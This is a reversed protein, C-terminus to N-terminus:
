TVNSYIEIINSAQLNTVQMFVELKAVLVVGKSISKCLRVAELWYLFKEWLFVEVIGKNYLADDYSTSSM